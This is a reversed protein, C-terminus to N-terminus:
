GPRDFDGAAAFMPAASAWWAANLIKAPYTVTRFRVAVLEVLDDALKRLDKPPQASM